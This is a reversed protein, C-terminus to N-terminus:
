ENQLGKAISSGIFSMNEFYNEAYPDLIVTRAGIQQAVLDAAKTSYQKQIFITSVKAQTAKDCLITLQKPSPDRGEFEISVQQLHFERCFYGYAPHSVFLTKGQQGKLEEHLAQDLQELKQIVRILREQFLMAHNPFTKALAEAIVRSQQQMMKPSMWIHPDAGHDHHHDCTAHLLDLGQRLDITQLSPNQSQLARLAKAEFPEGIIFWLTARSSNLIQKPTPEFTHSSFGAPVMLQVDVTTGALERVISAYPAVSVLVLPTEGLLSGVSALLTIILLYLQKM